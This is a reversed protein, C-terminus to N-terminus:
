ISDCDKANKGHMRRPGPGQVLAHEHLRRSEGVAQGVEVNHEGEAGFHMQRHENYCFLKCGRTRLSPEKGHVRM